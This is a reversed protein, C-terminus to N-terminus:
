LPQHFALDGVTKAGWDVAWPGAVPLGLEADHTSIIGHLHGVGVGDGGGQADQVVSLENGAAGPGPMDGTWEQAAPYDLLAGPGSRM